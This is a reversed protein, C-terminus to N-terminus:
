LWCQRGCPWASSWCHGLQWRFCLEFILGRHQCADGEGAKGLSCIYASMFGQWQFGLSAGPGLLVVGHGGSLLWAAATRAAWTGRHCQLGPSCAPFPPLHPSLSAQGDLGPRRPGPPWSDLKIGVGGQAQYWMQSICDQSQRRLEGQYLINSFVAGLLRRLM